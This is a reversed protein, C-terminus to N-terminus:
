IMTALEDIFKVMANTIARGILVKGNAEIRYAEIVRDCVEVVLSGIPLKHEVNISLFEGSFAYGNAKTTDISTVLKAWHKYKNKHHNASNMCDHSYVAYEKPLKRELEENIINKLSKLEEVSMSKVRELVKTM